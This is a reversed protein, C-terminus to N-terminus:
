LPPKLQRLHDQQYACSIAGGRVAAPIDFTRKIGDRLDDDLAYLSACSIRQGPTAANPVPCFILKQGKGDFLARIRMQQGGRARTLAVDASRGRYLVFEANEFDYWDRGFLAAGAGLKCYLPPLGPAPALATVESVKVPTIPPSVPAVLECACLLPLAAMLVGLSLKRIKLPMVKLFRLFGQKKCYKSM